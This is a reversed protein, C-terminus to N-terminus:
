ALLARLQDLQGALAGDDELCRLDLVLADDSVRGVVPVPLERFARALREVRKGSSRGAPRVALGASPLRVLPLAGSGVQSECAVVEVTAQEGLAAALRPALREAAGRIEPERRALQRLAPLRQALREPDRYLRLVAALAAITIKDLRLARKMPNRKIRAIQEGTGVVIGCQPGGLLKDGSFTVVDVGAAIAWGPTPERPLGYPTLDVLSGSGLDDICPVGHAHAIAALEREGVSATFGRVEYNSTHVKMLAGTRPGMAEEFDRPHTRNTTGVEVLKVGARKMIDPMRFAGGIEILEGRSVPVERRAALANLVLLVAAANNNVVTAAEAGTLDALLEEVHEDRDGRKGTGLRMEVNAPGAAAVMAEMAEPPLPARGLNTHLVTGTLNVVGVLSPAALAAVRDAVDAELAAGLDGKDGGRASRGEVLRTRLAEVSARAADRVLARGHRASLAELAPQALLRDISPIQALRRRPDESVPPPEPIARSASLM